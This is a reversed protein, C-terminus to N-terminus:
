LSERRRMSSTSRSDRQKSELKPSSSSSMSGNKQQETTHSTSPIHSPSSSISYSQALASLQLGSRLTRRRPSFPHFSSTSPLTDGPQRAPTPWEVRESELVTLSLAFLSCRCQEGPAFARQERGRPSPLTLATACCLSKCALLGTHQQISQNQFCLSNRSCSSSRARSLLTVGLVRPEGGNRLKLSGTAGRASTSTWAFSAEFSDRGGKSDQRLGVEGEVGAGLDGLASSAERDAFPPEAHRTVVELHSTIRELTLKRSFKLALSSPLLSM